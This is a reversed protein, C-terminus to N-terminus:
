AHGVLLLKKLEDVTFPPDSRHAMAHCNPCLPVLDTAPDVIYGAGIRSVPTVHHVHIFGEGISGYSQEFNFGCALCSTGHIELCAMRNSYNREYRNVLVRVSGGEPLGEPNLETMEETEELPILTLVLGIFRRAWKSLQRDNEEHDETNIGLPTKELEIDVSQWLDPWPAPETVSADTGNIRFHIRASDALCQEALRSFVTRRTPALHGMESILHSAFAGPVFAANLSRWGLQLQVRFSENPHVGVPVLEIQFEGTSSHSGKGELHLGFYRSVDEALRVPDAQWM